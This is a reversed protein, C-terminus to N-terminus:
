NPSSRIEVYDLAAHEERDPSGVIRIEDGLRLALGRIRRRTSSDGGIKSAPLIDNATWEDVVQDGVLVRLNREGNNQDFYQIDIEYRGADRTFRFSAACGRAQKCEMAKGGFANEWPVVDVASYGQLQMAEAEIRDPYIEVGHQVDPIGSTRFFWNCVADRGGSLQTRRRINLGCWVDSYHQEGIRGRLSQWQHVYQAAREAGEYHSDYIQQIVTKGSKLVYMYPVHHFFLLLEDPTSEM